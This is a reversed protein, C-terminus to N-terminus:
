YNITKHEYAMDLAADADPLISDLFVLSKFDSVHHFHYQCYRALLWTIRRIESAPMRCAGDGSACGNKLSWLAFPPLFSGIKGSFTCGSKACEACIMGGSELVLFAGAAVLPGQVPRGCSTCTDINPAVGMLRSFHYFFQWVMVPFCEDAPAIEMRGCMDECYSFVEPHSSDCSMTKLLMEFAIDRVVSKFLDTRISSYYCDVTIGGLTHLERNPRSYLLADILFGRELSPVGAKKQKVGKAIGHVLGHERTLLYLICSSERYPNVKLIFAQTKHPSM